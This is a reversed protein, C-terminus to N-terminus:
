RNVMKKFKMGLAGETEKQLIPGDYDKNLVNFM